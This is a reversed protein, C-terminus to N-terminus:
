PELWNSTLIGSGVEASLCEPIRAQSQDSGELAQSANVLRLSVQSTMSYTASWFNQM